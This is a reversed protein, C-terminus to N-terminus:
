ERGREAELEDLVSALGALAALWALSTARDLDRDRRKARITGIVCGLADRTRPNAVQARVWERLEAREQDLAARAKAEMM